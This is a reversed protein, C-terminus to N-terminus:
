GIRYRHLLRVPVPQTAAGSVGEITSDTGPASEVEAPRGLQRHAPEASRCDRRTKVDQGQADIRSALSRLPLVAALSLWRPQAVPRLPSLLFHPYTMWSRARQM